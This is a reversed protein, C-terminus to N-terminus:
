EEDEDEYYGEYSTVETVSFCSSADEKKIYEFLYFVLTEMRCESCYAKVVGSGYFPYSEINDPVRFEQVEESVGENCHGCGAEVIGDWDGNEFDEKDLIM